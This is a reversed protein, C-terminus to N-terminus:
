SRIVTKTKRKGKKKKSTDLIIHHRVQRWMAVVQYDHCVEMMMRAFHPLSTERERERERETEGEREWEREPERASEREREREYVCVRVCECVCVCAHM